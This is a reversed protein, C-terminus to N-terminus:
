VLSFFLSRHRGVLRLSIEGALVRVPHWSTDDVVYALEGALAETEDLGVATTGKM